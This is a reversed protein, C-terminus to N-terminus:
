TGRVFRCRGGPRGDWALVDTIRGGSETLGTVVTDTRLELGQRQLPALVAVDTDNKAEIACAYTDCQRCADCPPRGNHRSFNIALPIPFPHLGLELASDRFSRSIRALPPPQFPYISKRRPRTPDEEDDGAV